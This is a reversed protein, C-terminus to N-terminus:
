ESVVLLSSIRLVAGAEKAERGTRASSLGVCALAQITGDAPIEGEITIPGMDYANKLPLHESAIFQHSCEARLSTQYGLGFEVEWVGPIAPEAHAEMMLKAPGPRIDRCLLIPTKTKSELSIKVPSDIGCITCAGSEWKRCNADSKEKNIVQEHQFSYPQPQQGSPTRNRSLLEMGQREQTLGGTTLWLLFLAFCVFRREHM